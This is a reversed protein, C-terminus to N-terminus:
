HLCQAEIIEMISNIEDNVKNFEKLLIAVEAIAEPNSPDINNIDPFLLGIQVAREMLAFYKTKLESQSPTTM